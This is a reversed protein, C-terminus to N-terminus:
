TSGQEDSLNMSRTFYSIFFYTIRGLTYDIFNISKYLFWTGITVWVITITKNKNVLM